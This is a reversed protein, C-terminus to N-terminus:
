PSLQNRGTLVLNGFPPFLLVGKGTFGYDGHLTRNSCKTDKDDARASSTAVLLGCAIMMYTM